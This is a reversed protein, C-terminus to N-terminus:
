APPTSWCTSGASGRRRPRIIREPADAATIDAACAVIPQGRRKWHAPIEDLAPASRGVILVHAGRRAFELAAARGIGSTAGTVVVSKGTELTSM